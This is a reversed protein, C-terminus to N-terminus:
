VRVPGGFEVSAATCRGSAAVGDVTVAAVAAAEPPTLDVCVEVSLVQPAMLNGVPELTPGTHGGCGVLSAVGPLAILVARGTVARRRAM